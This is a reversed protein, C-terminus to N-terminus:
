LLSIYVEYLGMLRICVKYPPVWRAVVRRFNDRIYYVGLCGQPIKVSGVIAVVRVSRGSAGLRGHLLVKPTGFPIRM